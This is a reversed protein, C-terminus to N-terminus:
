AQTTPLAAAAVTQKQNRNPASLSCLQGPTLLRQRRACGPALHAAIHVEAVHLDEVHEHAGHPAQGRPALRAQLLGHVAVHAPLDLHTDRRAAHAAM